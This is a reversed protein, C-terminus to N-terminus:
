SLNLRTSVVLLPEQAPLFAPLTSYDLPTFDDSISVFFLNLFNPLDSKSIVSGDHTITFSTSSSSQGHLRKIHKWWRSTDSSKLRSAQNSYFSPKCSAISRAVKNRLHRWLNVDGSSFPQQRQYILYKVHPSM